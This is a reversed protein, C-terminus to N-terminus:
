EGKMRNLTRRNRYLGRPIFRSHKVGNVEYGGDLIFVYTTNNASLNPVLTTEVGEPIEDNCDIDKMLKVTVSDNYQVGNNTYADVIDQWTYAVKEIM